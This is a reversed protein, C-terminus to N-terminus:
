VFMEQQMHLWRYLRLEFMQAILADVPDPQMLTTCISVLFIRLLESPLWAREEATLPLHTTDNYYEVWSQIHHWALQGYDTLQRQHTASLYTIASQLAYAIDFLREREQLFDYDVVGAIGDGRYLINWFHYDGHVTLWPLQGIRQNYGDVLPLLAEKAERVIDLAQRADARSEAAEELNAEGDELFTLISDPGIDNRLEPNVPTINMPRECLIRHLDGLAGAASHMRAWDRHVGTDHPIYRHVEVIREGWVVCGSGEPTRMVEPVPFGGVRLNDMAAHIYEVREAFEDGHRARLMFMGRGTRFPETTNCQTDIPKDMRTVRGLDFKDVLSQLQSLSLDM